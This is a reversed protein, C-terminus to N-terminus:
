IFNIGPYIFCTLTMQVVYRQTFFHFELCKNSRKCSRSGARRASSMPSRRSLWESTSTGVMTSRESAGRGTCTHTLVTLRPSDLRSPPTLGQRAAGAVKARVQGILRAPKPQFDLFEFNVRCAPHVPHRQKRQHRTPEKPGAVAKWAGGVYGGTAARGTTVDGAAEATANAPASKLAPPRRAEDAAVTANAPASKLAPPRRAEDDDAAVSVLPEPLMVMVSRANSGGAGEEETGVGAAAHAATHADGVVAAAPTATTAAATSGQTPHKTKKNVSEEKPIITADHPDATGGTGEECDSGSSPSADSADSDARAQPVTAGSTTTSPPTTALSSGGSGGSGESAHGEGNIQGDSARNQGDDREHGDDCSPQRQRAAASDAANAGFASNSAATSFALPPRYYSSSAPEVISVRGDGGGRNGGRMIGLSNGGGRNDGRIIGLSNGGGGNGRRRLSGNGGSSGGGSEDLSLLRLNAATALAASALESSLPLPAKVNGGGGGNGGNGGGFGSVSAREGGRGGPLDDGSAVGARFFMQAVNPSSLARSLTGPSSLPPPNASRSTTGSGDSRRRPLSRGREDVARATGTFAFSAISRVGVGQPTGAPPTNLPPSPTPPCLTHNPSASDDTNYLRLPLSPPKNCTTVTPGPSPSM